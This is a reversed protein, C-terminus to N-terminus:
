EIGLLSFGTSFQLQILSYKFFRCIQWQQLNLCLLLQYPSSSVNVIFFKKSETRAVKTRSDVAPGTWFLANLARWCVVFLRMRFAALVPAASGSPMIQKRVDWGM